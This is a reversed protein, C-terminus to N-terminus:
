HTFGSYIAMIMMLDDMNIRCIKTGLEDVGIFFWMSRQKKPGLHSTHQAANLHRLFQNGHRPVVDGVCTPIWWPIWWTPLNMAVTITPKPSIQPHIPNYYSGAAWFHPDHSTKRSTKESQGGGYFPNNSSSSHQKRTRWHIWYVRGPSHWMNVQWTCIQTFFVRQNNLMAM